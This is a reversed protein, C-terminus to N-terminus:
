KRHKIGKLDGARGGTGGNKMVAMRDSEALCGAGNMVCTPSFIETDIENKAIFKM